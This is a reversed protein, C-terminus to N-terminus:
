KVIQDRHCSLRGYTYKVKPNNSIEGWEKFGLDTTPMDHIETGILTPKIILLNVFVGQESVIQFDGSVDKIQVTSM